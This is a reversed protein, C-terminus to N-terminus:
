RSSGRSSGRFLCWFGVPGPGFLRDYHRGDRYIAAIDDADRRGSSPTVKEM